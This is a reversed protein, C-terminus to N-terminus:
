NQTGLVVACVRDFDADTLSSGSPLCLGREFVAEAVPGGRVRCHAFVPQLHLPKWVPRAEVNRSALAVRVEERTAGFKEPDITICTLWYNAEGYAAMPMFEIGSVQDLVAKYREFNRRRAAIREALVRLQGRGIGALVNSLRYNFGVTSHQYHPAPDRAQTALFRAREVLAGDESVLMGGGSTTIIKNGNFSFIGCRGQTGAKRGKYTAGLAEASDQIVPVGYRACANLIPDYDASQGYLDVVIVARPLRGRAACADLEEGLLAPDMNWSAPESDIFVPTGGEYVIPNASAVFTLTSCLVEDGPRLGLLRLALHIAATGSSLAAAHPVGLYEAFEKEFADVHPGLPAIWNSAFAEKVLELEAEGMHPPSLYVRPESNTLAAGNPKAKPRAIVPCRYAPFYGTSAPELGQLQNMRAQRTCLDRYVDPAVIWRWTTFRHRRNSFGAKYHFLSDEKAGVGGGLHLVRAGIENGWLRVTDFILTMPSLTLFKDRTGGLHYQVVGDCITFLGAAAVEDGIVAVFLQLVPGLQHVLQEFYDEGFFYAPEAHVRRMTERYLSVFEGLYRKEHDHLCTVVGERRQKNIRRKFTDRYQTWQREPPLTLDISITQGMPRCEGLGALLDHQAIFPHLRSFVAVVRLEVLAERLAARFKGVVPEPIGEHSAVPGGYGYVSTADSWGPLSRGLPRLLLPLAILYDGEAYTFLHAAAKARREEIRHYQPLHYFDHQVVHGLVEIWEQQQETKLIWCQSAIVPKSRIENTDRV